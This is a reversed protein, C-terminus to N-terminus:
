EHNEAEERRGLSNITTATAYIFDPLVPGDTQYAGTGGQYKHGHFGLINRRLFHYCGTEDWGWTGDDRFRPERHGLCVGGGVYYGIGAPTSSPALHHALLRPFGAREDTHPIHRPKGPPPTGEHHHRHYWCPCTAAPDEARAVGALALPLVVLAALSWSRRM